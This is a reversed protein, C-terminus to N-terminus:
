VDLLLSCQWEDLLKYRLYPALTIDIHFDAPKEEHHSIIIVVGFYCKIIIVLSMFYRSFTAISVQFYVNQGMGQFNSFAEAILIFDDFDVDPQFLCPCGV